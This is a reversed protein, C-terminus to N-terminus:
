FLQIGVVDRGQGTKAVFLEETIEKDPLVGSIGQLWHHSGCEKCSSFIFSWCLLM